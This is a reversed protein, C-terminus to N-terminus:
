ALLWVFFVSSQENKDNLSVSCLLPLESECCSSTMVRGEGSGILAAPVTPLSRFVGPMRLILVEACLLSQITITKDTTNNIRFKFNILNKLSNIFTGNWNRSISCNTEHSSTSHLDCMRKEARPPENTLFLYFFNM